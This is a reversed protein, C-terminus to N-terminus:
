CFILVTQMATYKLHIHMIYYEGLFHKDEHRSERLAYLARVAKSADEYTIVLSGYEYYIPGISSFKNEIVFVYIFIHYLHVNSSIYKM